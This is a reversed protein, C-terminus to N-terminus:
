WGLDGGRDCDFAEFHAKTVKLDRSSASFAALAV